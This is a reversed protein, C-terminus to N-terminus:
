LEKYGLVRGDVKDVFRFGCTKFAIPAAYPFDVCKEPRAPDGLIKCRALTEDTADEFHECDELLCCVGCRVCEGVREYRPIEGAVMRVIEDTSPATNM